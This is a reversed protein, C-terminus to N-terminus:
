TEDLGASGSAQGAIIGASEMRAMEGQTHGLEAMDRRHECGSAQQGQCGTTSQPLRNESMGSKTPDAPQAIIIGQMENTGEDMCMLLADRYLYGMEYERPCATARMVQEARFITAESALYEAMGAEMDCCEGSDCARAASRVLLKAAEVRTVMEALTLQIAQHECIIRGFTQREQACRTALMLAGKAIGVGRAAMPIRGLELGGVAHCSGGAKKVVRLHEAPVKIDEFTRECTDISRYGIGKM